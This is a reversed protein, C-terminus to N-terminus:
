VVLIFSINLKLELLPEGRRTLAHLEFKVVIIQLKVLPLVTNGMGARMKLVVKYTLRGRVTTRRMTRWARLKRDAVNLVFNAENAPLWSAETVPCFRLRPLLETEGTRRTCGRGVAVRGALGRSGDGPPGGPSLLFALFFRRFLSLCSAISTGRGDVPAGVVIDITIIGGDGTLGIVGEGTDVSGSGSCADSGGFGTECKTYGSTSKEIDCSNGGLIGMSCFEINGRGSGGGGNDEDSRFM